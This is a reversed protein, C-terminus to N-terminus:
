ELPCPAAQKSSLNRGCREARGCNRWRRARARPVREIHGTRCSLRAANPCSIMSSISCASSGTGSRSTVPKGRRYKEAFYDVEEQAEARRGLAYDLKKKHEATLPGAFHVEGTNPNLIIDDPHPLPDPVTIGIRQCRKIEESWKHKYEVYTGFLEMRSQHDDAELRTVLEAMTRQAFRNGKMASVGMARFVAQIAPLEIVKEGERLVVTRYAEERLYQSTPMQGYGTDIKPKNAAGKPRGGPNGSQGKRFRHEAPPKAYGVEYQAPPNAKADPKSSAGSM